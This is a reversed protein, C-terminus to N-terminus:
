CFAAVASLMRTVPATLFGETDRLIGVFTDAASERCIARAIAAVDAATCWEGDIGWLVRPKGDLPPFHGSIRRLIGYPTAPSLGIVTEPLGGCEFLYFLLECFGNETNLAGVTNIKDCKAVDSLNSVMTGTPPLLYLRMGRKAYAIGLFRMMQAHFLAVECPSFAPKKETLARHLIEGAHYPDPRCYGEQVLTSHLAEKCGVAVFDDLMRELAECLTHLDCIEVGVREGLARIGKAFERSTITLVDDPSFLPRIRCKEIGNLPYFTNKDFDLPSTAVLVADINAAALHDEPRQARAALLAATEQWIAAANKANPPLTCGLAQLETTVADYLPSGQLSPLAELLSALKEFDAGSGTLYDEEVGAARLAHRVRGSALWCEAVNTPVRAAPPQSLILTREHM